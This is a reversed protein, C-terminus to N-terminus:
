PDSPTHPPRSVSKLCGRSSRSVAAPAAVRQGLLLKARAAGFFIVPSQYPDTQIRSKPPPDSHAPTEQPDGPPRRPDERPM